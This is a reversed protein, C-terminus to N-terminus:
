EPILRDAPEASAPPQVACLTAARATLEKMTTRGSVLVALERRLLLLLRERQDRTLERHAHEQTGDVM